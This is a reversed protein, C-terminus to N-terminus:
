SPTHVQYFSLVKKAKLVSARAHVRCWVGGSDRRKEMLEASM